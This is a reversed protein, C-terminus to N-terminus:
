AALGFTVNMYRGQEAVDGKPLWRV